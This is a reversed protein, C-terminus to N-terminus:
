NYGNNDIISKISQGHRSLQQSEWMIRKNRKLCVPVYPRQGCYSVFTQSNKGKQCMEKKRKGSVKQWSCTKKVEEM